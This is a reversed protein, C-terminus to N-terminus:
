MREFDRVLGTRTLPAAADSFQRQEPLPRLRQPPSRRRRRTSRSSSRSSTPSENRARTSTRPAPRGTAASARDDLFSRRSRRRGATTSFPGGLTMGYLSPVNYGRFGRRADPARVRRSRAADGDRRARREGPPHRVHRRQPHRSLQLPRQAVNTPIAGGRRAAPAPDRRTRRSSTVSSFEPPVLTQRTGPLDDDRARHKTTESPTFGRRALRDLRFRRSCKDCRATTKFLELGRAHGADGFRKGLPPAGDEANSTSTTGTPAPPPARRHHRGEPRRRDRSRPLALRASLAGAADTGRRTEKSPDPLRGDRAREDGRRPRRVCRAHEGEFDHM